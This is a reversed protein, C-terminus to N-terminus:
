LPIQECLTYSQINNHHTYRENDYFLIDEEKIKCYEM